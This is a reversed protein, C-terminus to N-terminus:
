EQSETLDQQWSTAEGTDIELFRSVQYGREACNERGIIVFSDKKTCFERTGAWQGGPGKHLAHLYYYRNKLPGKLVVECSGTAINWWGESRWAKGTSYAIAGSIPAKTRNCVLLDASAASTLTLTALVALTKPAIKLM